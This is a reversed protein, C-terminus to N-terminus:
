ASRRDARCDRARVLAEREAVGLGGWIGQEEGAGIAYELCRSSVPCSRCLVKALAERHTRQNKSERNDVIFLHASEEGCRAQQRWGMDDLAPGDLAWGDPATM